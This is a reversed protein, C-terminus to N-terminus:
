NNEVVEFEIVWVWPNADWGLGKEKYIPDWIKSFPHASYPNGSMLHGCLYKNKIGEAEADELSIEQVREVRVGTIELTIRSAWQPMHQAQCHDSQKHHAWARMEPVNPDDRNLSVEHRDVRYCWGDRGDHFKLAEKVWLRDGVKGITQKKNVYGHDYRDKSNYFDWTLIFGNDNRVAECKDWKIPPQIKFPRRTQTKRGDLLARVMEANFTIPKSM